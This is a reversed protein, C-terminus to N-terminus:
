TIGAQVPNQHIYNIKQWMWDKRVLEVPHNDRRWLQYTTNNKNYKAYYKFLKLMWAQRSETPNEVVHKIIAKSTHKKFDRLINSFEYGEKAAVVIHIHNSMIVYAYVELGKKEQCYKFSDILIDKYVKRSFVDIWGVVTATIFHLHNQNVIKHGTM